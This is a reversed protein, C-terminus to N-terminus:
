LAQLGGSSQSCGMGVPICGMIIASRVSGSRIASTYSCAWGPPSIGLRGFLLRLGGLSLPLCFCYWFFGIFVPRSARRYAGCFPCTSRSVRHSGSGSGAELLFIFKSPGGQRWRELFHGGGWPSCSSMSPLLSPPGPVLRLPDLCCSQISAAALHENLLRM